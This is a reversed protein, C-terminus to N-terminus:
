QSSTPFRGVYLLLSFSSFLFFSPLPLSNLLLLLFRYLSPLPFVLFVSPCVSLCHDFSFASRFINLPAFPTLSLWFLSLSHLFPRSARQILGLHIAM